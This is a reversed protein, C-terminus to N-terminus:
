PLHSLIPPVTEHYLAHYAAIYSASSWARHAKGMPRGTQKHLWETFEWEGYL